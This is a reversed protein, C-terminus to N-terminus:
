IGQNRITLEFSSGNWEVMYLCLNTHEYQDMEVLPTNLLQSLIIRMARGHMCILVNAETRQSLIHSIAHKQREFVQNPSEGEEIARDLNGESWSQTLQQYYSKTDVSVEEGEKIGWSIENLGPLIQLPIGSDIFHSTSQHTRQLESVYVKDFDLHRNQNYFKLAQELGLENLPADIGSGQVIGRKNFDTQGHRIIYLKKKTM